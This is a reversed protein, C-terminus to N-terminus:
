DLIITDVSKPNKNISFFSLNNIVRYIIDLLSSKGSGNKGVIAQININKGYLDIFFDNDNSTNQLVIQDDVVRYRRDFFYITNKLTKLIHNSAQQRLDLALLSFSNNM